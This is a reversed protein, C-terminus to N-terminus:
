FYSFGCVDEHDDQEFFRFSLWDDLLSTLNLMSAFISIREIYFTLFYKKPSALSSLKALINKRENVARAHNVGFSKVCNFIENEM